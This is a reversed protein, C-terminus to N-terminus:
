QTCSLTHARTVSQTCTRPAQLRTPSTLRLETGEGHGAAAEEGMQGCPSTGPDPGQSTDASAGSGARMTRSPASQRQHTASPPQTPSLRLLRPPPSPPTPPPLPPGTPRTHPFLSASPMFASAAPQARIPPAPPAAPPESPAQPPPPPSRSIRDADSTSQRNSHRKKEKCATRAQARCGGGGEKQGFGGVGRTIGKLCLHASRLPPPFTRCIPRIPSEAGLM